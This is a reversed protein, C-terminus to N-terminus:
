KKIQARIAESDWITFSGYKRVIKDIETESFDDSTLAKYIADDHEKAFGNVENIPMAELLITVRRTEEDTTKGEIYRFLLKDLESEKMQSGQKILISDLFTYFGFDSGLFGNPLIQQITVVFIKQGLKSGM